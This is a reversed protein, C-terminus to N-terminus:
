KMYLPRGLEYFARPDKRDAQFNWYSVTEIDRASKIVYDDGLSDVKMDLHQLSSYDNYYTMEIITIARLAAARYYRVASQCNGDGFLKKFGVTMLAPLYNQEAALEGLRFAETENKQVGGLGGYYLYFSYLHRGKPSGLQSSRRSYQASKLLNLFGIRNGILYIAALEALADASIRDVGISLEELINLGRRFDRNNRDNSILYMATQYKNEFNANESQYNVDSNSSQLALSFLLICIYNSITM